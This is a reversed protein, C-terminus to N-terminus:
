RVVATLALDLTPRVDEATFVTGPTILQVCIGDLVTLLQLLASRRDVLLAGEDELTTLWSAIRDRSLVVMRALTHAGQETGNPGVAAAYSAFWLSMTEPRLLEEPFYQMLCEALRTRPPVERDGIRLDGLMRDVTPELLVDYLDAQTPFYHRLTSAGIGARRAVSRVSVAEIGEESVIARAAEIIEQRRDM